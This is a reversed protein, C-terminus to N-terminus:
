SQNKGAARKRQSSRNAIMAVMRNHEAQSIVGRELLTRNFYGLWLEEALQKRRQEASLDTCDGM